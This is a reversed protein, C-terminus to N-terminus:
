EAASPMIAIRFLQSGDANGDTVIVQGDATMAFDMPNYIIDLGLDAAGFQGLLNGEADLHMITYGDDSEMGQRALFFTGDPMAAFASIFQYRTQTAAFSDNLLDGEPSYVHIGAVLDIVYLSGDPGMEVTWIFSDLDGIAFERVLEGSTTYAQIYDIDDHSNTVYLNGDPGLAVFNPSLNDFVAEGGFSQVVAGEPSLLVVTRGFADVLWLNGNGALVPSSLSFFDKNTIAGLSKGEHSFMLVGESGDSAYIVDDSIALDGDINKFVGPVVWVLAATELNALTEGGGLAMSFAIQGIVEYYDELSEPASIFALALYQGDGQDFLIFGGALDGGTSEASAVPRGDETVSTQIDGLTLAMDGTALNEKIKEAVTELDAQEGDTFEDLVAQPGAALLLLDGPEPLQDSSLREIAEESPAVLIQQGGIPLTIWGAPIMFHYSGDSAAIEQELGGQALAPLAAIGLAAVLLVTLLRRSNM